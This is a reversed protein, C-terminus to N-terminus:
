ESPRPHRSEWEDCTATASIVGRVYKCSGVQLRPFMWKCEVCSFERKKAERYHAQEKTM